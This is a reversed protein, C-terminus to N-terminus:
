PKPFVIHSSTRFYFPILAIDTESTRGEAELAVHVREGIARTSLFFEIDKKALIQTQDLQRISSESLHQPLGPRQHLRIHGYLSILFVIFGVCLYVIFTGKKM